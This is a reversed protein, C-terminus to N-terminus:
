KEGAPALVERSGNAQVSSVVGMKEMQEIMRAARNYGVKLRRQVYSISAKRSEKVVFLAEDFLPDDETEEDSKGGNSTGDSGEPSIIETYQPKGTKRLFDTVAEVEEDTVFAGHIRTPISAGVELMLMDGRGLLQEAGNQDLITRSDVKSSVQFAIRSPVNAKVLGTIVNVSPRQTALLLHMGAARAKQALRVVSEEVKKGAVMMMDAFEDVVIVIYPMTKDLVADSEEGTEPDVGILPNKLPEGKKLADSVRQNYGEISRAGLAAMLKYRMEMENVAWRLAGAAESMDTIVPTMLHPIDEYAKMELMKPDIMIFQVQEPLNKFLLSLLMIHVAVSKGSGTTGAILLHPMRALDIIAIEGSIKKGLALSLAPKANEYAQSGLIEGLRVVAPKQNPIEIGITDRGPIVEVVRLSQVSMSRALDREISSITSAKTGPAPVVEFRTIVPGAQVAATKVEIGFDQLKIELQRSLQEIEKASYALGGTASTEDSLLSLPPLEGAGATQITPLAIQDGGRMKRKSQKAPKVPIEIHPEATRQLREKREVVSKQRQEAARYTQYREKLWGISDRIQACSLFTFQGLRDMLRLWSLRMMFTIGALSLGLLLLSTGTLGVAGIFNRAVIEGIRGGATYPMEGAAFHVSALGCAAIVTFTFAIWNILNEYLLSEKAQMPALYLWASAGIALPLLLLIPKGFLFYLTYSVWSGVIGGGNRVQDAPINNAWSPDNPTYSMLILILYAIIVLLLIGIMTRVRKLLEASLVGIDSNHLRKSLLKNGM